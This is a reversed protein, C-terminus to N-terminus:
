YLFSYIEGPLWGETKQCQQNASLFPMWGSYLESM